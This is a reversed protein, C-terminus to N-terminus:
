EIQNKIKLLEAEADRKDQQTSKIQAQLEHIESQQENERVQQIESMKIKTEAHSEEEDEKFQELDTIGDKLSVKVDEIRELQGSVFKSLETDKTKKQAEASHKQGTMAQKIENLAEVAGAHMADLRQENAEIEKTNHENDELGASLDEVASKHSEVIEEKEKKAIALEADKSHRKNELEDLEGSVAQKKSKLDGDTEELAKIAEDATEKQLRLAQENAEMEKKKQSQTDIIQRELEEIAVEEVEALQAANLKSEIQTSLRSILEECDSKARKQEVIEIGLFRIDRELEQAKKTIWRHWLRNYWKSKLDAQKLKVEAELRRINDVATERVQKELKLKYDLDLKAKHLTESVVADTAAEGHAKRLEDLEQLSDKKAATLDEIQRSKEAINARFKDQSSLMVEENVRKQESVRKKSASISNELSAIDSRLQVKLDKIEVQKERITRELDAKAADGM